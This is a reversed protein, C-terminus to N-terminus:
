STFAVSAADIAIGATAIRAAATSAAKGGTIWAILVSGMSTSRASYLGNMLDKRRGDCFHLRQSDSQRLISEIFFAFKWYQAQWAPPQPAYVPTPSAVAAISEPQRGLITM